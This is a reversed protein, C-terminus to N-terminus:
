PFGHPPLQGDRTAVPILVVAVFCLFLEHYVVAILVFAQFSLVFAAVILSTRDLRVEEPRQSAAFPVVVALLFGIQEVLGRHVVNLM